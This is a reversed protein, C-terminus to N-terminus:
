NYANVHFPPYQPYQESNDNVNQFDEEHVIDDMVERRAYPYHDEREIYEPAGRGMNPENWSSYQVSTGVVYEDWGTYQDHGNMDHHDWGINQTDTHMCLSRPAAEESTYGQRLLGNMIARHMLGRNWNVEIPINITERDIYSRSHVTMMSWNVRKWLMVEAYVMTLNSYTCTPLSQDV